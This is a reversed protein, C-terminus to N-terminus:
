SSRSLTLLISVWINTWIISSNFLFALDSLKEFSPFLLALLFTVCCWISSPMFARTLESSPLITRHFSARHHEPALCVQTWIQRLLEHAIHLRFALGQRGLVIYIVMISLSHPWSFERLFHHRPSWVVAAPVQNETYELYKRLSVMVYQSERGRRRCGGGGM